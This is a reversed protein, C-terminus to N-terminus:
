VTKESGNTINDEIKDKPKGKLRKKEPIEIVIEKM